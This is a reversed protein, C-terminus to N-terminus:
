AKPIVDKVLDVRNGCISRRFSRNELNWNTSELKVTQVICVGGRIAFRKFLQRRLSEQNNDTLGIWEMQPPMSSVKIALLTIQPYYM